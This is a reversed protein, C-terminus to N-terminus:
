QRCIQKSPVNVEKVEVECGISDPSCIMRYRAMTYMEYGYEHATIGAGEMSVYDAYMADVVDRNQVLWSEYSQIPRFKLSNFIETNM